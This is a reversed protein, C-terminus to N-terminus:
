DLWRIGHADSARGYADAGLTGSSAAEALIRFFGEFGAPSTMGLLRGVGPRVRRHAHPIGRPLFVVGRPGVRMTQDGCDFDHEGELVYYMEDEHAHVHRSTDLLPPLEEFLTFAGATSAASALLVMTAGGFSLQEGQDASFAFAEAPAAEAPSTQGSASRTSTTPM